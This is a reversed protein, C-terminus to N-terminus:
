AQGRLRAGSAFPVESAAWPRDLLSRHNSVRFADGHHNRPEQRTEAQQTEAEKDLRRRGTAPARDDTVPDRASEVNQRRLSPLEGRLNARGSSPVCGPWLLEILQERPHSRHQYYALYALLVGTKHTRFRSVVRDASVARLWGFMEIQWPQDM